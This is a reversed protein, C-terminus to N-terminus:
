ASLLNYPPARYNISYTLHSPQYFCKTIAFKSIIFYGPNLDNLCKDADIFYDLSQIVQLEIKNHQHQTAPNKNETNKNFPHAHIIVRGCATRHAHLFFTANFIIGGIIALFLASIIIKRIHIIGKEM